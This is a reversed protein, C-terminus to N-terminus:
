KDEKTNLKEQAAKLAALITEHKKDELELKLDTALDIDLYYNSQEPNWDKLSVKGQKKKEDEAAAKAKDEEAAIQKIFAPNDVSEWKVNSKRAHDVAPSKQLFCNGDETFYLAKSEPYLDFFQKQLQVMNIKKKKM